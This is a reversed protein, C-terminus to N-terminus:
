MMDVQPYIFEAVSYTPRSVPLAGCVALLDERQWPLFDESDRLVGLGQPCEKGLSSSGNGM